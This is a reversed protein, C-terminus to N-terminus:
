LRIYVGHLHEVHRADGAVHDASVELLVKYYEVVFDALPLLVLLSKQAVELASQVAEFEFDVILRFIVYEDLRCLKDACLGQYAPAM